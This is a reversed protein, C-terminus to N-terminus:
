CCTDAEPPPQGLVVKGAKKNDNTGGRSVIDTMIEEMTEEVGTGSKASTERFRMKRDGLM